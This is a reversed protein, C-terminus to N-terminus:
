KLSYSESSYIRGSALCAAIVVHSNNKKAKTHIPIDSIKKAPPCVDRWCGGGGGGGDDVGAGQTTNAASIMIAATPVAGGYM